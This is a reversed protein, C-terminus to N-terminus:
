TKKLDNKMDSFPNVIKTKDIRFNNQMDESYLIGCGAYLAGALILSDWFSFNHEERILSAKHLIEEDIEVINYKNYFSRILGRIKEESFNAKKILNVCVENIVQTSVTIDKKQIVNKAIASKQIDKEIFSYLWINSDIFYNKNEKDGTM